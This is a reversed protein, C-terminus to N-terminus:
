ISKTFYSSANFPFWGFNNKTPWNNNWKNPTESFDEERVYNLPVIEVSTPKINISHGHVIGVCTKGDTKDRSFEGHFYCITNDTNFGRAAWRLRQGPKWNPHEIPVADLEPYWKSLNITVQGM